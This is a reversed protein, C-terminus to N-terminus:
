HRFLIPHENIGTSPLIGALWRKSPALVVTTFLPLYDCGFEFQDGSKQGDNIQTMSEISEEVHAM